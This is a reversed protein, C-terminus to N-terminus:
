KMLYRIILLFIIVAIVIIFPAYQRWMTALNLKRAREAYVQSDNRLQDSMDTIKELHEGRKFIDQVNKVMVRHVEQLEGEIKDLNRQARPDKYSKIMKTIDQAFRIFNYPRDADDVEHGHTSTFQQELEDLFAFALRSPYGKECVVM